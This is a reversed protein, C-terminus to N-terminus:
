PVAKKVVLLTGVAPLADVTGSNFDVTLTTTSGITAQAYGGNWFLDVKAGGGGVISHEYPTTVVGAHDGSRTTLNGTQPLYSFDDTPWADGVVAKQVKPQISGALYTDKTVLWYHQNGYLTPIKVDDGVEVDTQKAQFAFGFSAEWENQSRENAAFRVAQFTKEPHGFLGAANFAGRSFISEMKDMFKDTIFDKTVLLDISRTESHPSIELPKGANFEEQSRQQDVKWKLAGHDDTLDIGSAGYVKGAALFHYLKKAQAAVDGKRLFANTGKLKYTVAFAIANGSRETLTDVGVYGCGLITAPANAEVIALAADRDLLGGTTEWVTVPLIPQDRNGTILGFRYRISM